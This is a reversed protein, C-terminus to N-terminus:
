ANSFRSGAFAPPLPPPPMGSIQSPMFTPMPPMPPMPMPPMAPTPNFPSTDLSANVDNSGALTTPVAPGAAAGLRRALLAKPIHQQATVPESAGLVAANSLEIEQALLRARKEREEESIVSIHYCLSIIVSIHYLLSIIYCLYPNAM